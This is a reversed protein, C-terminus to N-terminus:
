RKWPYFARGSKRARKVLEQNNLLLVQLTQSHEDGVDLIADTIDAVRNLFSPDIRVAIQPTDSGDTLVCAWEVEPFARLGISLAELATDTVAARAEALGPHNGTREALTPEDDRSPSGAGPPAQPASIPTITSASGDGTQENAPRVARTPLAQAPVAGAGPAAAVVPMGPSSVRGPLQRATSASSPAVPAAVRTASPPVPPPTGTRARPPAPPVGLKPPAVPPAVKVAASSSGAKPTPTRPRAAVLPATVDSEGVMGLGALVRNPAHLEAASLPARPPRTSNRRVAELIAAEPRAPVRGGNSAEDNPDAESLLPELEERAFEVSHESGIDIVVFHVNRALAHRLAERAGLERFQLSGDPHRWGFRTATPELVDLATFLPLASEGHSNTLTRAAENPGPWTAVFVARQALAVLADVRAQEGANAASLVRRFAVTAQDVRSASM